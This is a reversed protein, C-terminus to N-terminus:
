CIVMDICSFFDVAEFFNERRCVSRSEKQTFKLHEAVAGLIMDVNISPFNRLIQYNVFLEM